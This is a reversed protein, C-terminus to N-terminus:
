TINVSFIIRHVTPEDARWNTKIINRM